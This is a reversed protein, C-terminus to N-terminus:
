RLSGLFSVMTDMTAMAMLMPACSSAIATHRDTEVSVTILEM